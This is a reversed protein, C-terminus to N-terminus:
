YNLQWQMTTKMNEDFLKILITRRAITNMAIQDMLEWFKNDNVFVPRKLAINGYKVIGPIKQSSFLVSNSHPYESVQVEKDMGSVEQFAINQLEVGLDVVFDLKLMPGIAGEKCGNDAV